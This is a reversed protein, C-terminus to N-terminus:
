LGYVRNLFRLLIPGFADIQNLHHRHNGNPAIYVDAKEILESMHIIDQLKVFKEEEGHCILVPCRISRLDDEILGTDAQVFEKVKYM